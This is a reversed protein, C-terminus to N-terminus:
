PKDRFHEILAMMNSNVALQNIEFVLGAGEEWNPNVTWNGGNNGLRSMGEFQRSLGDAINMVGPIHQADVINHALVRDRWRAHTASLKDNILM